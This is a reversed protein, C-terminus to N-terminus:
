LTLPARRRTLEGTSQRALHLHVLGDQHGGVRGAELRSHLVGKCLQGLHPHGDVQDGEVVVQAGVVLPDDLQRHTGVKAAVIALMASSEM